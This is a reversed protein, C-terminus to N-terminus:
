APTTVIFLVAMLFFLSGLASCAWVVFALIHEQERRYFFLGTLWGAVFLLASVVPLLMLRVASVAELPEGFPGFGLPVRRAGPVLLSVWALAGLNLFVGSLWLFRALPNEWARTVIFSPYVSRPTVPTLSGLEVAHAFTQVFAAAEAPSLAYIRRATAVLILNRSEAAIFEIVGLDLHHRLGLIAGPLRFWPLRLPTTLASAPRMWEVDSLPIDEVRLGWQISLNDRSLTYNARLLAYGRYAFVPLLASPILTILLYVIFVPGVEARSLNWLGWLSVMALTLVVASHILMGLRKPPPYHEPATPALSM